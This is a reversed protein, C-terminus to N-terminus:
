EGKHLVFFSALESVNLRENEILLTDVEVIVDAISGPDRADYLQAVFAEIDKGHSARIVIKLLSTLDKQLQERVLRKSEPWESRVRALLRKQAKFEEIIEVHSQDKM